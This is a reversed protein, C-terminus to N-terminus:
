LSFGIKCTMGAVRQGERGTRLAVSPLTLVMLLIWLHTMSCGGAHITKTSANFGGGSYASGGRYIDGNRQLVGTTM